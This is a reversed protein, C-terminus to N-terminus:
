LPRRCPWTRPEAQEDVVGVSVALVGVVSFGAQTPEIPPEVFCWFPVPRDHVYLFIPLDDKRELFSWMFRSRAVERDRDGVPSSLIASCLTSGSGGIVRTKFDYNEPPPGTVPLRSGISRDTMPGISNQRGNDHKGIEISATNLKM